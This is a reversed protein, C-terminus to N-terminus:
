RIRCPLSHFVNMVRLCWSAICIAGETMNLGESRELAPEAFCRADGASLTSTIPGTEM